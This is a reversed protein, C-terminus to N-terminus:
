LALLTQLRIDPIEGKAVADEIHATVKACPVALGTYLETLHQGTSGLATEPSSSTTFEITTKEPDLTRADGSGVFCVEALATLDSPHEKVSVKMLM